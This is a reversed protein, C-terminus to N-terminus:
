EAPNEELLGLGNPAAFYAGDAERGKCKSIRLIWVRRRLLGRVLPLPSSRAPSLLSGPALQVVSLTGASSEVAARVDQPRALLLALLYPYVIVM